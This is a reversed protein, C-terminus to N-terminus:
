KKRICIDYRVVCSDCEPYFSFSHSFSTGHSSALVTHYCGAAVHEISIDHLEPVSTPRAFRQIAHGHGLQGYDNRGFTIVDHESLVVSHYYGCRVENVIHNEISSIVIRTPHLRSTESSLGLQGYDNKGMGYIEDKRRLILTHYQGCAISTIINNEDDDKNEVRTPKTRDINDGM